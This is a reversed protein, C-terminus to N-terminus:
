YFNEMVKILQEIPFNFEKEKNNDQLCNYIYNTDVYKIINENDQIVKKIENDDFMEHIKHQYVLQIIYNQISGVGFIGNVLCLDINTKEGSMQIIEPEYELPVLKKLTEFDSYLLSVYPIIRDDLEPGIINFLLSEMNKKLTKQAEVQESTLLNDDIDLKNNIFKDMDFKPLDDINGASDEKQQPETNISKYSEKTGILKNMKNEMNVPSDTVVLDSDTRGGKKSM